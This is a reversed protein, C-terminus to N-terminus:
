IAFCALIGSQVLNCKQGSQGSQARWIPALSGEVVWVLELKAKLAGSIRALALLQRQARVQDAYAENPAVSVRAQEPVKFLHDLCGQKNRRGKNTRAVIVDRRPRSVGHLPEFSNTLAHSILVWFTPRRM